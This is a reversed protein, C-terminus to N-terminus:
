TGINFIKQGAGFKELTLSQFMSTFSDGDVKTELDRFFKVDRLGKRLFM